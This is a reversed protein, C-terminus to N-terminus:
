SGSLSGRRVQAPHKELGGGCLMEQDIELIRWDRLSPDEVALGRVAGGERKVAPQRDESPDAQHWRDRLARCTLERRVAPLVVRGTETFIKSGLKLGPSIEYSSAKAASSSKSGSKKTHQKTDAHSISPHSEYTSSSDDTSETSTDEEDQFKSKPNFIKANCFNVTAQMLRLVTLASLVLMRLIMAIVSIAVLKLSVSSTRADRFTESIREDRKQVAEIAKSLISGMRLSVESLAPIKPELTRSRILAPMGPGEWRLKEMNIPHLRPYDCLLMSAPETAKQRKSLSCRTHAHLCLAPPLFAMSPGESRRGIAEGITMNRARNWWELSRVGGWSLSWYGRIHEVWKLYGVYQVGTQLPIHQGGGGEQGKSCGGDM